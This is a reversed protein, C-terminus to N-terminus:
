SSKLQKRLARLETDCIFGVRDTKAMAACWAIVDDDPLHSKKLASIVVQLCAEIDDTMMGEDSMEVQYSGQKMLELSLKMAERLHGLKILRGFNRKVTTYAQYDYDFNYNIEREDFETADVIAQRTEAVLEKPPVEVIFQMELQRMIGRDARAIEVIVEILEAKRRRALARALREASITTKPVITAKKKRQPM